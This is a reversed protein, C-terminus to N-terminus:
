FDLSVSLRYKNGPRRGSMMAADVTLWDITLGLGATATNRHLGTRLAFVDFFWIETGLYYSVKSDYYAPVDQPRRIEGSVLMVGRITYSAGLRLESYIPDPEDSTSILSLEPEGINRMVCGLSWNDSRYLFGVDLAYGTDSEKFNPDNYYDYGPASIRYVRLASGVGLNDSFLRRGGGVVFTNESYLDEVGSRAWGFGFGTRSLGGYSVAMCDESVESMAYLRTRMGTLKLGDTFVGGAPNWFIATADDAVAVFAGGMATARAGEEMHVFGACLTGPMLLLVALGIGLRM